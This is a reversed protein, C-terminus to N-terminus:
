VGKGSENKPLDGEFFRKFEETLEESQKKTLKPELKYILSLIFNGTVITILYPTHNNVTVYCNEDWGYAVLKQKLKEIVVALSRDFPANTDILVLRVSDARYVKLVAQHNIEIEGRTMVFDPSKGVRIEISTQAMSAEV